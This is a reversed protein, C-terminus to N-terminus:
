VTAFINFDKLFTARNALKNPIKKEKRQRHFNYKNKNCYKLYKEYRRM